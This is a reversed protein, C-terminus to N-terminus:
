LVSLQDSYWFIVAGLLALWLTIPNTNEGEGGAREGSKKCRKKPLANHKINVKFNISTIFLM